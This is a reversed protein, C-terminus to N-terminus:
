SQMRSWREMSLSRKYKCPKVHASIRTLNFLPFLYEFGVDWLSAHRQSGIREADPDSSTHILPDADAAEAAPQLLSLIRILAFVARGLGSSLPSPLPLSPLFGFFQPHASLILDEKEM